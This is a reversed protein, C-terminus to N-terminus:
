REDETSNEGLRHIKKKSWNTDCCFLSSPALLRTSEVDFSLDTTSHSILVAALAPRWTIYIYM